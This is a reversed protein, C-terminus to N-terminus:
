YSDIINQNGTIYIRYLFSRNFKYVFKTFKLEM